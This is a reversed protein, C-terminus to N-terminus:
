TKFNASSSLYDSLNLGMLPLLKDECIIPVNSYNQAKLDTLIQKLILKIQHIKSEPLNQCFTNIM